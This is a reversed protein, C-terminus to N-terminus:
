DHTMEKVKNFVMKTRGQWDGNNPLKLMTHMASMHQLLFNFNTSMQDIRKDTADRGFLPDNISTELEEIYSLASSHSQALNGLLNCLAVRWGEPLGPIGNIKDRIEIYTDLADARSMVPHQITKKRNRTTDEVLHQVDKKSLMKIYAGCDDNGCTAKTHPGSEELNPHGMWGCQECKLAFCEEQEIESGDSIVACSSRGMCRCDKMSCWMTNEYATNIFEFSCIKNM